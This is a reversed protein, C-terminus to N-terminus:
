EELALGLRARAASCIEYRSADHDKDLSTRQAVRGTRFTVGATRKGSPAYGVESGAARGHFRNPHPIGPDPFRGAGLRPMSVATADSTPNGSAPDRIRISDHPADAPRALEHGAIPAGEAPRTVADHKVFAGHGFFTREGPPATSGGPGLYSLQYLLPNFIGTDATRNRGQAGRDIRLM